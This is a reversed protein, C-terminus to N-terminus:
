AAQVPAAALLTKLESLFKAKDIWAFVGSCMRAGRHYPSHNMSMFVIKTHLQLQAMAIADQLESLGLMEADVLLYDPQQNEVADMAASITYARGVVHAIRQHDILCSILYSITPSDDAILITPAPLVAPAIFKADPLSAIPTAPVAPNIAVKPSAM